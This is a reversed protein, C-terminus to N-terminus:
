TFYPQALIHHLTNYLYVMCTCALVFIFPLSLLYLEGMMLSYEVGTALVLSIIGFFFALIGYLKALILTEAESKEAMLLVEPKILLVLGALAELIGNLRLIWKM